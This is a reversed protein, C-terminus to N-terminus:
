GSRRLYLEPHIQHSIATIRDEIQLSPHRDNAVIRAPDIRLYCTIPFVVAFYRLNAMTVAIAIGTSLVVIPWHWRASNAILSPVFAFMALCMAPLIMLPYIFAHIVMANNFVVSMLLFPCSLIATYYAM